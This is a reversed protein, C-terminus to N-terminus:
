HQSFQLFQGLAKLRGFSTALCADGRMVWAGLVRLIPFFLHTSAAHTHSCLASGLRGIRTESTMDRSPPSSQASSEM